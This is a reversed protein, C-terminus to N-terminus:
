YGKNQTLQPNLDLQTQPIPWWYNKNPDFKRLEIPSRSYTFITDNLVKEATRWRRIDNYFTGEGAFEIRREHQILGRLDAQSYIPQVDPMGARERVQNLASYVTADPGTAENKAEAYSLLIDAYRLIIYNTGSQGAKLDSQGAAPAGKDYVSYKKLGFGTIAFRTNTVKVNMFTDGPYVITAYLRPDRNAYPSAPNYGSTPDTIAKGNNMDYAQALGLLPANTNYQRDILDFSNGEDTPIFQVDFLVEKNNENAPLFLSRYSSFLGYGASSAMDMVAKAADAATKWKNVDGTTNYLPSAEFLLVRAKLGLAAGRTARGLDTAAYKLPLVAAASDLDSLVQTIVKARDTRPLKAQTAPDPADLVLPVAGYYNQLIFYYLARLFHAEGKMQTRVANDMAVDDVKSLFTNCRGIGMYCDTWRGAVVGGTSASMDGKAVSNFSVTNDYDYANPTATEEFLATADGGFLSKNTLVNYCGTLAASAATQSKWFNSETYKDDPETNLLDKNCRSTLLGTIIYLAIISTRKMYM